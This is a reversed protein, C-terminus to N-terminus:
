YVCKEMNLGWKLVWTYFVIKQCLTTWNQKWYDEGPSVFAIQDQLSFAKAGIKQDHQHEQNSNSKQM